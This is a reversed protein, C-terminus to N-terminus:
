KWRWSPSIECRSTDTIQRAVGGKLAQVFLDCSREFVLESGDPSWAPESDDPGRSIRSVDGTEPAITWVANSGGRDWVFAIQRGDPSWAPAATAGRDILM